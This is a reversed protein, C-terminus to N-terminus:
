ERKDGASEPHQSLVRRIRIPREGLAPEAGRNARGVLKHEGDGLFELRLVCSTHHDTANTEDLYRQSIWNGCHAPKVTKEGRTRLPQPGPLFTPM